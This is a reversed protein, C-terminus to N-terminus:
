YFLILPKQIVPKIPEPAYDEEEKPKPKPKSRQIVKPEAMKPPKVRKVLVEEEEEEEESESEVMVYKIKKAQKMTKAVVVPEEELVQKARERVSNSVVSKKAAAEPERKERIADSKAKLSQRGKELNERQKDTLVRKAKPAQIPETEADPKENM